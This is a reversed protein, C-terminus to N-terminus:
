ELDDGGPDYLNDCGNETKSLAVESHTSHMDASIFYNFHFNPFKLTSICFTPSFFYHESITNNQGIKRGTANRMHAFHTHTHTNVAVDSM